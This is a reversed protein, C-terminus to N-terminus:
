EFSQINGRNDSLTNSPRVVSFGDGRKEPRMIRELFSRHSTISSPIVFRRFFSQLLNDPTHVSTPNAQGQSPLNWIDPIFTKEQM